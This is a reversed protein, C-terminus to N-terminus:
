KNSLNDNRTGKKTQKNSCISSTEKISLPSWTSEFCAYAVTLCILNSVLFDSLFLVLCSLLM